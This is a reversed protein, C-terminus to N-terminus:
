PCPSSAPVCDNGGTGGPDQCVKLGKCCQLVSAFRPAAPICEECAGNVCIGGHPPHEADPNGVCVHGCVGCNNDSDQRNVCVGGCCDKGPSCVTACTGCHQINDRLDFCQEGCATYGAPCLVFNTRGTPKKKKKGKRKKGQTAGIGGVVFFGAGLIVGGLLRSLDRRSSEAVVSRSLDDFRDADM